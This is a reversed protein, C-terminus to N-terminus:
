DKWIFVDNKAGRDVMLGKRMKWADMLSILFDDIVDM